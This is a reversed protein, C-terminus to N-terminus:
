EDLVAIRATRLQHAVEIRLGAVGRDDADGSSRAGALRRQDARQGTGPAVGPALHRHQRYIRRRRERMARQEAVPDAEGLVEEVGADEDARHRVAPREAAEALR